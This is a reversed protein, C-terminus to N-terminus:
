VNVACLVSNKCCLKCSQYVFSFLATPFMIKNKNVNLLASVQGFVKIHGTKRFGVMDNPYQAIRKGKLCMLQVQLQKSM